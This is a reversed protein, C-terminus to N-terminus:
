RMTQDPRSRLLPHLPNTLRSPKPNDLQSNSTRKARMPPIKGGYLEKATKVRTLSGDGSVNYTADQKAANVKVADTSISIESTERGNKFETWRAGRREWYHAANGDNGWGTSRRSWREGQFEIALGSRVLVGDVQWGAVSTDIRSPMTVLIFPPAGDNATALGSACLISILALPICRM